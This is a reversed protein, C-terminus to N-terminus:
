KPRCDHNFRSVKPYVALHAVDDVFARFSNKVVKEYFSEGMQRMFSEQTKKPLQEIASRYFDERKEPHMDMHPTPHIVLAPLQQMIIEGKRITRNAILGVGKGPVEAEYFATQEVSASLLDAPSNAVTLANDLTTILAIGNDSEKDFFLCFDKFCAESQQWPHPLREESKDIPSAAGGDHSSILTRPKAVTKLQPDGQKCIWLDTHILPSFPCQAQLRLDSAVIVTVLFVAAFISRLM